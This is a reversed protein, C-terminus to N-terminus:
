SNVLCDERRSSFYQHSGPRLMMGVHGNSNLLWEGILQHQLLCMSVRSRVICCDALFIGLLIGPFHDPPEWFLSRSSNYEHQLVIVVKQCGACYFSLNFIRLSSTPLTPDRLIVSPASLTKVTPMFIGHTSGFEDDRHTESDHAHSAHSGHSGLQWAPWMVM